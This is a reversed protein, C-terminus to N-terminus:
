IHISFSIHVALHWEDGISISSFWFFGDIDAAVSQQQSIHTEALRM